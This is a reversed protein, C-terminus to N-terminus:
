EGLIVEAPIEGYCKTLIADPLELFDTGLERTAQYRTIFQERSVLDVEWGSEEVCETVDQEFYTYVRELIETDFPRYFVPMLPYQAECVYMALSVADQQATPSDIGYGGDAVIYADVGQEQLCEVLVQSRERPDVERIVEVPPPDEVGAMFAVSELYDDLTLMDNSHSSGEGPLGEDSDVEKGPVEEVQSTVEGGELPPAVDEDQPDATCAAVGILSVAVFGSIWVVRRM